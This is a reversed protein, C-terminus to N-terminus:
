RCRSSAACNSSSRRISRWAPWVRVGGRHAQAGLQHAAVVLTRNIRAILKKAAAPDHSVNAQRVTRWFAVKGALVVSLDIEEAFVNILLCAQDTPSCQLWVRRRCLAAACDRRACARRAAFRKFRNWASARCPSPPWEARGPCRTADLPRFRAGLRRHDGDVRAHGSPAGTRATRRRLVPAADPRAVEIQSREIAVVADRMRGVIPAVPRRCRPAWSCDLIAATPRAPIAFARPWKSDGVASRQANSAVVYRAELSGLRTGSNTGHETRTAERCTKPRATPRFTARGSRANWVPYGTGWIDCTTGSVLERPCPRPTSSWKPGLRRGRTTSTASSKARVVDGGACVNPM